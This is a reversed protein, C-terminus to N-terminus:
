VKEEFSGSLGYQNARADCYVCVHACGRYPNVTYSAWFWDDVHRLRNIMSRAQYSEYQM